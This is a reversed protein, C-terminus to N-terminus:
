VIVHQNFQNKVLLITSCKDDNRGKLCWTTQPEKHSKYPDEVAILDLTWSFYLLQEKRCCGKQLIKLLLSLFPLPLIHGNRNQWCDHTLSSSKGRLKDKMGLCYNWPVAWGPSNPYQLSMFKPHNGSFMSDSFLFFVWWKKCLKLVCIFNMCISIGFVVSPSACRDFCREFHISCLFIWGLESSVNSYKFM